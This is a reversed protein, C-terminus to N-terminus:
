RGGRGLGDNQHYDPYPPVPFTAPPHSKLQELVEAVARELQPDHGANVEKPLQEVELGPPIGHNEM